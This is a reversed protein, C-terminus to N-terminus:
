SAVGGSGIEARSSSALRTLAGASWTRCCDVVASRESCRHGAGALTPLPDATVTLTVCPTPGFSLTNRGYSARATSCKPLVRKRTTAFLFFNIMASATADSHGKGLFSSEHRVYQQYPHAAKQAEYTNVVIAEDFLDHAKTRSTRNLLHLTPPASIDRSSSPLAICALASETTQFLDIESFKVNM